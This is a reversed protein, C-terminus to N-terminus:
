VLRSNLHDLSPAVMMARDFSGASPKYHAAQLSRLDWTVWRSKRSPQELPM